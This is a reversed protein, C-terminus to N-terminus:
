LLQGGEEEEVEEGRVLRDQIESKEKMKLTSFVLVMPLKDIWASSLPALRSGAWAAKTGRASSAPNLYILYYLYYENNM